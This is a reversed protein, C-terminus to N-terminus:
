PCNKGGSVYGPSERPQKLYCTGEGNWSWYSCHDVLKCLSSCNQWTSVDDIYDLSEFSLNFDFLPCSFMSEDSASAMVVGTILVFLILKMRRFKFLAQSKKNVAEITNLFHLCLVGM